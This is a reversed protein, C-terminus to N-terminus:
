SEERRVENSGRDFAPQRPADSDFPQAIRWSFPALLERRESQVGLLADTKTGFKLM